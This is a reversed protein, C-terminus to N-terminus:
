MTLNTAVNSKRLDQLLSLTLPRENKNCVLAMEWAFLVAANTGM